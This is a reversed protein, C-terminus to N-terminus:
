LQKVQANTPSDNASRLLDSTIFDLSTSSGLVREAGGSGQDEVRESADVGQQLEEQLPDPDM